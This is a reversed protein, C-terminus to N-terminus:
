GGDKACRFGLNPVTYSASLSSRFAFRMFAAYNGVDSSGITAGGCFRQVERDGEQRNDASVLSASFDSVWEWVLEHLDYVGYFNPPRSGVDHLETKPKAYWKLIRAVGEDDTMGDISKEDARAAYEWESETPLRKGHARCYASAAFWSVWTVPKNADRTDAIETDNKFHRLYTKEGFLTPISSRRWKPNAAVFASFEANTVPYRDFYFARVEVIQGKKVPYFPKMTGGPVRVMSSDVPPTSSANAAWSMTSAM